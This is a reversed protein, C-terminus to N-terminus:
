NRQPEEDSKDEDGRLEDMAEKAGEETAEGARKLDDGMDEVARETAEGAEKLAEGTEEAARDIAEGTAELAEEAEQGVSKDQPTMDGTGPPVTDPQDPERPTTSDPTGMGDPPTEMSDDQMSENSPSEMSDYADRATDDGGRSMFYGIILLLIILPLLLKKM